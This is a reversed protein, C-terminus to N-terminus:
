AVLVLSQRQYITAPAKATMETLDSEEYIVNSVRLQNAVRKSFIRIGTELVAAYSM